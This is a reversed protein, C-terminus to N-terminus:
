SSFNTFSSLNATQITQGSPGLANITSQIETLFKCLNLAYYAGVHSAMLVLENNIITFIPGGSDGGVINNVYGNYGSDMSFPSHQIFRTNSSLPSFEYGLDILDSEEFVITEARHLYVFRNNRSLSYSPENIYHSCVILPLLRSRQRRFIDTSQYINKNTPFYNGANSPLMKYKKIESPLAQTFRVVVCDLSGVQSFSAVTRSVVTNNPDVFKVVEGVKPHFDFHNIALAHWPTIATCMRTNGGATDVCLGSLDFSALWCNANKQYTSTSNNYTSYFAYHLPAETSGGKLEATKDNSNKIASGTVFSSFEDVTDGTSEQMTLSIAAKEGTFLGVVIGATGNSVHSFLVDLSSSNNAIATNTSTLFEITGTKGDRFVPLVSYDTVSTAGTNRSYNTDGVQASSSSGASTIRSIPVKSLDFSREAVTQKEWSILFESTTAVGCDIPHNVSDQM